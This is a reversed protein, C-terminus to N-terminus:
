RGYYLPLEVMRILETMRLMAVSWLVPRGSMIQPGGPMPLDAATRAAQM